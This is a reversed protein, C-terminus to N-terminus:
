LTRAAKLVALEPALETLTGIVYDAAIRARGAAHVQQAIALNRTLADVVAAFAEDFGTAAETEQEQSEVPHASM